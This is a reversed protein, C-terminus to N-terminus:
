RPIPDARRGRVAGGSPRRAPSGRPETPSSAGGRRATGGPGRHCPEARRRGRARLPARGLVDGARSAARDHLPVRRSAGRGRWRRHRRDRGGARAGARAGRPVAAHDAGPVFCVEQSDPKGAVPFGFRAAHTRTEAKTMGGIPFMSRELEAQGLIHLMYSQDKAPTRAGCCTGGDTTTARRGCTIVPRSPTSGSSRPAIFSPGSSSTARQMAHVPEADPRGRARRLFRRSGDGRLGREHGRDRLRVRRDRAVEAADARASPGCCGHDVGDALHVLNMHSGLVEYGQEALLCAAVSSDVGGSM